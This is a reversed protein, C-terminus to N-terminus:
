AQADDLASLWAFLPKLTKFGAASASVITPKAAAAPGGPLDMWATLGKHRLLEAHPLDADFGSPVRKLEPERIRIGAKRMKELQKALAKGDPGAVRKRYRDIATKEFGFIGAGLVLKDPELGFFWKPADTADRPQFLMHLYTKYPTKDKSFRIDRNVRFIKSGHPQGTLRELAVTMHECFDAAPQKVMLEYRSKNATFWERNNNAKLDRLFAVTDPPFSFKPAASKATKKKATM